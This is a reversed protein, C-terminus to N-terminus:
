TQRDRAPTQRPIRPDRNSRSVRVIGGEGGFLNPKNVQRNLEGPVVGYGHHPQCLVAIWRLLPSVPPRSAEPRTFGPARAATRAGCKRTDM